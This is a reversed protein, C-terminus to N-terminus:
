LTWGDDILVAEDPLYERTLQRALDSRNWADIRLVHWLNPRDPHCPEGVGARCLPSPCAIRVYLASPDVAGRAASM